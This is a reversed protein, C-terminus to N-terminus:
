QHMGFQLWGCYSVTTPAFGLQMTAEVDPTIQHHKRKKNEASALLAAAKEKNLGALKELPLKYKMHLVRLDYINATTRNNCAKFFAAKDSKFDFDFKRTDPNIVGLKKAVYLLEGAYV